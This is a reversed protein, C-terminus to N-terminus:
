EPASRDATDAARMPWSAGCFLARDRRHRRPWKPLRRGLPGYGLVPFYSWKQRSSRDDIPARQSFSKPRIRRATRGSCGGWTGPPPPASCRLSITSASRWTQLWPRLYAFGELRSVGSALATDVVEVAHDDPDAFGKWGSGYNTSYLMPSLVDITRSMRGPRQGVGEDTSSELTIGLVSAGVACGLPSLM